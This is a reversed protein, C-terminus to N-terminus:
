NIRNTNLTPDGTYCPLCKPIAKDTIMGRNTIMMCRDMQQVDNSTVSLGKLIVKEM